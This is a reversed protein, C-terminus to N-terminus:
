STNTISLQISKEKSSILLFSVFPLFGL